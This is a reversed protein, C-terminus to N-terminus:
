QFDPDTALYRYRNAGWGFATSYAPWSIVVKDAYLTAGASTGTPIHTVEDYFVELMATAFTWSDDTAGPFPEEATADWPTDETMSWRVLDNITAKLIGAAKVVVGDEDKEERLWNLLKISGTLEDALLADEGIEELYQYTTSLDMELVRSMYLATVQEGTALDTTYPQSLGLDAGGFMGGAFAIAGMQWFVGTSGGFGIGGLTLDFNWNASEQDRQEKGLNHLDIILRDKGFLDEFVAKVRESNKKEIPSDAAIMKLTVPGTNGEAIWATYAEDFLQLARGQAYGYTEPDIGMKELLALYQPSDIYFSQDQIYVKIDGPVPVFSPINPIDYNNNYDIRDFGYLLAQRFRKDFLISDPVHKSAGETKSPATNITLFMPYGTYSKFINEREAFEEWNESNLGISDIKDDRFLNLTEQPSSVLTYEMSKYSVTGKAVYSYNKNFVLKQDEDWDKLVYPGYSMYLNSPTGYSSNGSVDLSKTYEEPHVLRFSNGFSVAGAQSYPEHFTMKFTYKDLVEFGVEDWSVTAPEYVIYTDEGIVPKGEEDLKMTSQSFYEWANLIPVANPNKDTKYYSNARYNNQQKDLYQQLSFEYVSADVQRGDQFFIDDRLKFTWERSQNTTAARRDYKGNEDLMQDGNANRPFEAGGILITTYDLAEVSFEGAVIKSFDGPADAVGQAMALDWDVETAFLSTAMNAILSDELNNRYTLPNLIMRAQKTISSRYTENATWDVDVSSLPEWYAHLQASKTVTHPFEVATPELWTLGAKGFFWGKFVFGDRTPDAPANIVDGIEAEISPISTSTKTNFSIVVEETWGAFVTVDAEIAKEFDFPKTAAADEFWGLFDWSKDEDDHERTPDTEPRAVLKGKEVEVPEVVSGGQTDFTVTFVKPTCAALLIAAFVTLFLLTIKKM